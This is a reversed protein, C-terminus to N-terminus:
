TADRSRLQGLGLDLRRRDEMSRREAVDRQGTRRAGARHLHAVARQRHRRRVSRHIRARRARRGVRRGRGQRRGRAARAVHLLGQPQRRSERDMGAQRDARRARRADGRGAAFFVKDEICRSAVAPRICSSARRSGAHKSLAVVARRDRANIAIVQNGPTAVFM